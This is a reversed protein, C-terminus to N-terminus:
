DTRAIREIVRILFESYLDVVDVVIHLTNRIISM